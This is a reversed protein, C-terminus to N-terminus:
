HRFPEQKERWRFWSLAQDELCLVVARLRDVPQTFGQVDFFREMKYIWGYVDEGGFLPM